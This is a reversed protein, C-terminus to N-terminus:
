AVDNDLNMNETKEKEHLNYARQLYMSGLM